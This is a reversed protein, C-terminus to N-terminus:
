GEELAADIMAQWSAKSADVDPGDNHFWRELIAGQGHDSMAASPERIAQFVARVQDVLDPWTADEGMQNPDFDHPASRYLARAARELPTM